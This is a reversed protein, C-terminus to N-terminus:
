HFLGKQVFIHLDHNFGSRYKSPGSRTWGLAFQHGLLGFRHEPLFRPGSRNGPLFKSGLRNLELTQNSFKM